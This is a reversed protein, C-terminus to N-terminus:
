EELLRLGLMAAALLMGGLVIMPLSPLMETPVVSLESPIATSLFGYLASVLSAMPPVAVSAGIAAAVPLSLRRLWLRRRIRGVIRDSFGADAILEAQLLSELFRDEADKIKDAM